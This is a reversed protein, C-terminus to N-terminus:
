PSLAQSLSPFTDILDGVFWNASGKLLEVIAQHKPHNKLAELAQTDRLIAIEVLHINKRVDMNPQVSWFFIGANAGGCDDGLTTYRRAIDVRVEEPADPLFSILVVHHLYTTPPMM